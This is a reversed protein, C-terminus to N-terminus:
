RAKCLATFSYGLCPTPQTSHGAERTHQTSHSYHSCSVSPEYAHFKRTPNGRASHVRITTEKWDYGHGDLLSYTRPTLRLNHEMESLNDPVGLLRTVWSSVFLHVCQMSLGNSCLPVIKKEATALFTDKITTM